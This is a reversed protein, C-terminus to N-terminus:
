DCEFKQQQERKKWALWKIRTTWVSPCPVRILNQSKMEKNAAATLWFFRSFIFRNQSHCSAVATFKHVKNGMKLWYLSISLSLSFWNESHSFGFVSCFSLFLSCVFHCKLFGVKNPIEAAFWNFKVREREIEIRENHESHGAIVVLFWVFM